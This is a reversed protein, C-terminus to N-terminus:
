ESVFRQNSLGAPLALKRSTGGGGGSSFVLYESVICPTQQFPSYPCSMHLLFEQRGPSHSFSLGLLHSLLPQTSLVQNQIPVSLCKTGWPKEPAVSCSASQVWHGSFSRPTPLRYGETNRKTKGARQSNVLALSLHWDTALVLEPPQSSTSPQM